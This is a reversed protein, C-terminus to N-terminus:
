AITEGLNTKEVKPLELTDILARARSKAFADAYIDFVEAVDEAPVFRDLFETLTACTTSKDALALAADEDGALADTNLQALTPTSHGRFGVAM